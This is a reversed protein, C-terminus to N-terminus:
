LSRVIRFGTDKFGRNADGNRRSFSRCLPPDNSCSGGRIVRTQNQSDALWVEGNIPANDYNEHWSDLCWEWVNGHMDFLGFANAFRFSGVPITKGRNIGKSESHYRFSGDYNALETTITEGFHFPTTTGARCAYEWEAETPLRYECGTKQSLRDCFEVADYWSVETVPHSKGGCRSPRLKLNQRVEPLSAVEKCQAKTIPYRGILFPQVTVSHQPEDNASASKAKSKPSGMLFTGGPIVVMELTVGNGLEETLQQTQDSHSSKKIGQFDVTVVEFAFQATGPILPKVLKDIPSYSFDKAHERSAPRIFIKEGLNRTDRLSAQQGLELLLPSDSLNTSNVSIQPFQDPKGHDRNLQPVRQQLYQELSRPTKHNTLGELLAYTFAGQGLEPIEYSIEGKDCSFITIIGRQKALKVTDTGLDGMGKSGDEIERCMDLALVVNKAQCDILCRIVFDISIATGELDRSYGDRPILYDHNDRGLIGHGSFFLWLNDARKARVIEDRLLRRLNSRTPHTPIKRNGIPESDDSCLLVQDPSFGAQNCLFNKVSDADRVAYKLHKPAPLHEYYNVGIAIAWNNSM